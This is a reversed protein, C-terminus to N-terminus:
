QRDCGLLHDLLRASGTLNKAQQMINTPNVPEELQFGAKLQDDSPSTSAM